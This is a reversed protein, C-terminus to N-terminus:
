DGSVTPKDKTVETLLPVLLEKQRETYGRLGELLMSLSFAKVGRDNVTNVRTSPYGHYNVGFIGFTHGMVQTLSQIGLEEQREKLFKRVNAKSVGLAIDENWDRQQSDYGEVIVEEVMEHSPNVEREEQLWKVKKELEDLKERRATTSFATLDYPLEKDLMKSAFNAVFQFRAEGTIAQNRMFKKAAYSGLKEKIEVLQAGVATTWEYLADIDLGRAAEYDPEIRNHRRKVPIIDFKFPSKDPNKYASDVMHNWLLGAASTHFGTDNAYSLLHFKDAGVAAPQAAEVTAEEAASQDDAKLQDSIIYSAARLGKEMAIENLQRSLEDDIEGQLVFRTIEAM